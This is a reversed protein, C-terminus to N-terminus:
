MMRGEDPVDATWVAGEILGMDRLFCDFAQGKLSCPMCVIFVLGLTYFLYTMHVYSCMASHSYVVMAGSPSTSSNTGSATFNNSDLSRTLKYACVYLLYLLFLYSIAKKVTDTFQM